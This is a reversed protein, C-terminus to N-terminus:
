PFIKKWNMRQRKGRCLGHGTYTFQSSATAHRYERPDAFVDTVDHLFVRRRAGTGLHNEAIRAEVRHQKMARCPCCPVRPQFEGASKNGM